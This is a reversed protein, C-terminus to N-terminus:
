AATVFGKKELFAIKDITKIIEPLKSIKTKTWDEFAALWTKLNIDIIQNEKEFYM